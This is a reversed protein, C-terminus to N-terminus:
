VRVQGGKVQKWEWRVVNKMWAHEWRREVQRDHTRVCARASARPMRVKVWTGRCSRSSGRVRTRGRTDSKGAGMNQSLEKYGQPNPDTNM